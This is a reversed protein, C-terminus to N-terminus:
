RNILTAQYYSQSYPEGTFGSPQTQSNNSGYQMQKNRADYSAQAATLAQASPDAHIIRTQGYMNPNYRNITSSKNLRSYMSKKYNRLIEQYNVAFQDQPSDYSLQLPVTQKDDSMQVNIRLPNQNTTSSGNLLENAAPRHYYSRYKRYTRYLLYDVPTKWM